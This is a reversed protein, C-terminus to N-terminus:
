MGDPKRLQAMAHMAYFLVVILLLVQMLLAIITHWECVSANFHTRSSSPAPTPPVSRLGGRSLISLEQAHPTRIRAPSRNLARLRICSFFKQGDRM